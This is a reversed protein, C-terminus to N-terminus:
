GALAARLEATAAAVAAPDYTRRRLDGIKRLDAGLLEAAARNAETADLARLIVALYVRAERQEFTQAGRRAFSARLAAVRREGLLRGMLLGSDDLSPRGVGPAPHGLQRGTPRIIPRTRMGWGRFGTGHNGRRRGHLLIRGSLERQGRVAARFDPDDMPDDVPEPDERRTARAAPDTMPDDGPVPEPPEPLAESERWEPADPADTEHREDLWADDDDARWANAGADFYFDESM